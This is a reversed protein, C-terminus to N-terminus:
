AKEIVGNKLIYVSDTLRDEPAVVSRNAVQVMMKAYEVDMDEAAVAMMEHMSSPLFIINDTGMQETLSRLTEPSLIAAAGKIHNKTTIVYVPPKNAYESKDYGGDSLIHDMEQIEYNKLIYQQAALLLDEMSIEGTANQLNWRKIKIAATGEEDEELVLEFVLAMDLYHMYVIDKEELIPINDADSFVPRVHSLIYERSLYKHIDVKRAHESFIKEMYDALEEDNFVWWEANFYMTPTVNYNVSRFSYADRRGANIIPESEYGIQFPCNREQFIKNLKEARKVMKTKIDRM